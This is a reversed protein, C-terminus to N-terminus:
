APILVCLVAFLLSSWTNLTVHLPKHQSSLHTNHKSYLTNLPWDPSPPLLWSSADTTSLIWWSEWTLNLSQAEETQTKGEANKATKMPLLTSIRLVSENFFVRISPFTSPLPLLPCCLVLHNSPMVSETSMLKLLSWSITFSLSAQRPTTWPTALTLCPQAVSCCCFLAATVGRAPTMDDQKARELGKQTMIATTSIAHKHVPPSPNSYTLSRDQIEPNCGWALTSSLYGAYCWLTGCVM